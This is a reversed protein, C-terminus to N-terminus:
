LDGAATRAGMRSSGGREAAGALGVSVGADASLPLYRAASDCHRWFPTREFLCGAFWQSYARAAARGKRLRCDRSRSVVPSVGDARAAAPLLFDRAAH